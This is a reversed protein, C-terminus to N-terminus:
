PDPPGFRPDSLFTEDTLAHLFALLDRRESDELEFGRVRENKFPNLAGIGANPGHHLTRGGTAYHDIVAELNPVSGDHMYPATVAINRLTPARFRGSDEIRLSHRRLGPNDDPYAGLGDGSPSDGGLGDAPQIKLNYLGTNHFVPEHDRSGEFHFPGSFNFGHHCDSCALRHSFFLQMGRRESTSLADGQGQYMYRDFASNGSILTREFAALAKAVREMTVVPGPDSAPAGFAAQFALVMLWDDRLRALLDESREMGMEVPDHGFIPTTLQEELSRSGPDDWTFSVNYAVNTLSMASRPHVEGTVGVPRDRSDTFALEQRHCTACSMSGDGSLRTDYFLARGLAVKEASM